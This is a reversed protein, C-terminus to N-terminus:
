LAETAGVRVAAGDALIGEVRGAGGVVCTKVDDADGVGGAGGIFGSEAVDAVLEQGPPRLQLSFLYSIRSFFM